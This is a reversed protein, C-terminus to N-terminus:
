RSTEQKPESQPICRECTGGSFPARRYYVWHQGESDRFGSHYEFGSPIGSAPRTEGHVIIQDLDWGTGPGTHAAHRIRTIPYADSM